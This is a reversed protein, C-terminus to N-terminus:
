LLVIYKCFCIKCVEGTDGLTGNCPNDPAERCWSSQVGGFPKFTRFDFSCFDNSEIFEFTGHPINIGENMLLFVPPMMYMAPNQNLPVVNSFPLTESM